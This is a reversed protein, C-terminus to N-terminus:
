GKTIEVLVVKGGSAKVFEAGVVEDLTYDAGKILVDPAIREILDLPTDSGFLVVLDVPDLAGIVAARSIEDQIPRTEGKLRRVSADSNLAVILKDCHAQCGKLLAIHGPHILDYCGNTFGVKLGARRWSDRLQIALSVDVLQGKNSSVNRERLMLALNLEHSGVTVTGHRSVAIGAAVNAIQVARPLPIGAAVGLALNAIATDGAGSVDFVEIAETPVNLPPEDRRYLCM